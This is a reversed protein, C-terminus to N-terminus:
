IGKNLYWQIEKSLGVEILTNPQYKLEGEIKSTDLTFDYEGADATVYEPELECKTVSILKRALDGIPINIAGANYV